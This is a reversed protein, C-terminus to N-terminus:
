EFFHFIGFTLFRLTWSIIYYKKLAKDITALREKNHYPSTPNQSESYFQELRKVQESIQASKANSWFYGCNVEIKSCAHKYRGILIAITALYVSAIIGFVQM